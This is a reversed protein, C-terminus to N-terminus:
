PHAHRHRYGFGRHRHFWAHVGLLVVSTVLLLNGLGAAGPTLGVLDLGYLILAVLLSGFAYYLM